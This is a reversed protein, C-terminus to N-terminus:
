IRWIAVVGKGAGNFGCVSLWQDNSAVANVKEVGYDALVLTKTLRMPEEREIKIEIITGLLSVAVLSNADIFNSPPHQYQLLM